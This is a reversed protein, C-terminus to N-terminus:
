TPHPCPLARREPHLTIGALDPRCVDVLAVAHHTPDLAPIASGDERVVRRDQRPLWADREVRRGLSALVELPAANTWGKKAPRSGSPKRSVAKALRILVEISSM